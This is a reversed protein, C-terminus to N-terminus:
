DNFEPNTLKEAKNSSYTKALDRLKMNTESISVINLRYLTAVIKFLYILLMVSCAVIAVISCKSILKNIEIWKLFILSIIVLSILSVFFIDQNFTKIFNSYRIFSNRDAEDYFRQQRELRNELLSIRNSLKEPGIFLIGYALATFISLASLLNTLINNVQDDSINTADVILYIAAIYVLSVVIKIKKSYHGYFSSWGKLLITWLTRITRM